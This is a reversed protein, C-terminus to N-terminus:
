AAIGRRLQDVLNFLTANIQRLNANEREITAVYGQNAVIQAPITNAIVGTVPPIEPGEPGRKETTEPSTAQHATEQKRATGYCKGCMGRAAIKLGARGCVKCKIENKNASDKSNMKNEELYEIIAPCTACKESESLGREIKVVAARHRMICLRPVFAMNCRPDDTPSM